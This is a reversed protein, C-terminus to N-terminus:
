SNFFKSNPQTRVGGEKMSQFLELAEEWKGYAGCSSIASSFSFGDPEIGDRKMRDLLELSTRWLERDGYQGRGTKAAKSLAAIAANYTIINIKMNKETMLDLLELAKQWNGGNGCATITVSYTVESPAIGKLEMKELLQLAKKWLKVKACAEIAATYCYADVPLQTDEAVQLLALARDAKGGKACARIANTYTYIDAPVGPERLCQDFVILADKWNRPNACAAIVSNYSITNPQISERKLRQLLNKAQVSEGSKSMAMLLSNYQGLTRPLKLGEMMDVIQMAKRWQLRRSLGNTVQVCLQVTPTVGQRNCEVLLQAAREAQNCYLCCEIVISYTSLAPKTRGEQMRRLMVCAEKWLGDASVCELYYDYASLELDDRTQILDAASNWVGRELKNARCITRVVLSVDTANPQPMANLIKTAFAANSADYCWDLCAEYIAQVRKHDKQKQIMTLFEDLSESTSCAALLNACAVQTLEAGREFQSRAEELLVPFTECSAMQEVTQVVANAPEKAAALPRSIATSLLVFADVCTARRNWHLLMMVFLIPLDGSLRSM